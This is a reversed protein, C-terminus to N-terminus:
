QLLQRGQMPGGQYERWDLLREPIAPPIGADSDDDFVRRVGGYGLLVAFFSSLQWFAPHLVSFFSDKYGIPMSCEMVSNLAESDGDM